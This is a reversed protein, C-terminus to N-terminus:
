IALFIFILGVAIMIFHGPEANYVGTYTLFLQLNEGLFSLFSEQM